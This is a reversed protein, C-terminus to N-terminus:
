QIKNQCNNNTSNVCISSVKPYEFHWCESSLLCFGSQLMCEQLAKQNTMTSAVDCSTAGWLDLARGTTHPCRTNKAYPCCTETKCEAGCVTSGGCNKRYLEAQESIWRLADAVKIVLGRQRMCDAAKKLQVITQPAAYKSTPCIGPYNPIMISNNKDSEMDATALVPETTDPLEEGEITAVNLSKTIVLNPNITNLLLFSGLAIVLGIIAGVIREKAEGIKSENGGASVWQFGGIMIMIVALIGALYLAYDYIAMIYNALLDPHVVVEKEFGPIPVEPKFKILTLSKEGTTDTTDVKSFKCCCATSLLNPQAGSNTCFAKPYIGKVGDDCFDTYGARMGNECENVEYTGENIATKNKCCCDKNNNSSPCWNKPVIYKYGEGPPCTDHIGINENGSIVNNACDSYEPTYGDILEASVFNFNIIFFGFVLFIILNQRINKRM